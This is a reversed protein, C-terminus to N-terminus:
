KKPKAAKANAALATKLDEELADKLKSLKDVEGQLNQNVLQAQILAKKTADLAKETEQLKGESKQLKAALSSQELQAKNAKEESDLRQAMEHRWKTEQSRTTGCSSLNTVVLIACLIALGLMVRIKLTEGM